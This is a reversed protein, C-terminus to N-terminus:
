EIEEYASDIEALLKDMFRVKRLVNGAEVYDRQEDLLSALRTQLNGAHTKLENEVAQLATMDRGARADMLAERWEMQQMLFDAPMSTNKADMADVGNLELLYRAREFPKRLTQYAENVRTSWQMSLRQEAEGAHAFKDPHIEAQIGRYAQDLKEADIAFTMPLGFLDFHNRSFDLSM